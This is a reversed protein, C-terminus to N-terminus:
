AFLSIRKPGTLLSPKSVLLPAEPVIVPLIRSKGEIQRELM